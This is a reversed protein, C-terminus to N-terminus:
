KAFINTHRDLAVATWGIMKCKDISLNLTMGNKDFRDVLDCPGADYGYDGKPASAPTRTWGKAALAAAWKQQAEEGTKAPADVWRFYSGSSRKAKDTQSFCMAAGDPMTMVAAWDAPMPRDDIDYSRRACPKEKCGGLLLVAALGVGMRFSM